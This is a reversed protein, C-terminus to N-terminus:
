PSEETAAPPFEVAVDRFAAGKVNLIPIRGRFRSNAKLGPATGRFESTDGVQEGTLPNAVAALEVTFPQEGVAADPRTAATSGADTPVPTVARLELTITPQAIRISRQAHADLLYATLQGSARDLVFEVNAFHDGLEILTGGHPATHTHRHVSPPPSSDCATLLGACAILLLAAFLGAGPIWRM